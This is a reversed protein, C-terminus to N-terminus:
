RRSKYFARRGIRKFDVKNEDQLHRAITSFFWGTENDIANGQPYASKNLELERKINAAPVWGDLYASETEKIFALVEDSMLGFLRHVEQKHNMM